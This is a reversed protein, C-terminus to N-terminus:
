KILSQEDLDLLTLDVELFDLITTAVDAQQSNSIDAQIDENDLFLITNRIEPIDFGDHGYGIGGHDSVIVVLWDEQNNAIRTDIIAYLESVYHDINNVAQAYEVTDPHYGYAHGEHDAQDFHIFLVDPDIPAHDSLTTKSLDFIEQDTYNFEVPSHDAIQMTMFYNIPFWTAYSVLNVQEQGYYDNLHKFFHPHEKLNNGQFINDTVQHKDYHVGTCISAWNPGSITLRETEHQLNYSVTSKTKLSNMFPAINEDIMDSRCGDIGIVLVKKQLPFTPQTSEDKQCSFFLM